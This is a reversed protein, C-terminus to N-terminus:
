QLLINETGQIICDNPEKDGYECSAIMFMGFDLTAEWFYIFFVEKKKQTHSM